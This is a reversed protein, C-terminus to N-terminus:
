QHYNLERNDAQNRECGFDHLQALLSLLPLIQKLWAV